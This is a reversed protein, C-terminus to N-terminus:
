SPRGKAVSGMGIMCVLPDPGPAAIGLLWWSRPGLTLIAAFGASTEGPGVPTEGYESWDQAHDHLEQLRRILAERGAKTTPDM